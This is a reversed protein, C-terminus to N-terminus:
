ARDVLTLLEGWSSAFGEARVAGGGIVLFFPSGQVGYALWTATSMVVPVGEPARRAVESRDETEPDPTVIVLPSRGRGGGTGAWFPRCSTCSSTLFAVVVRDAAGVPVTAPTGDPARGEIATVARGVASPRPPPAPRRRDGLLRRTLRAVM